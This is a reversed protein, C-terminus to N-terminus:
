EIEIVVPTEPASARSCHPQEPVLEPMPTETEEKFYTTTTKLAALASALNPTRVNVGPGDSKILKTVTLFNRPSRRNGSSSSSSNSNDNGSSSSSSQYESSSYEINDAM